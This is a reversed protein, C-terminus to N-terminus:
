RFQASNFGLISLCVTLGFIGLTHGWKQSVEYIFPLVPIYVGSNKTLQTMIEICHFRLPFYQATPILKLTGICIQVLPYVLQQLQPKHSTFALLDAWLHISNIYQWNYVAQINEKKKLTIANRLQIALQRVYLFVHQYSYTLDLAFMEVLSRRMFNIGPLTSPSMFKTNIVYVMYMRKLAINLFSQRQSNVMRLLCLFAIVRVTDEQTGWLKILRILMKKALTNFSVVMPIM